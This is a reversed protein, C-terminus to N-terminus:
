LQLGHPQKPLVIWGEDQTAQSFQIPPAKTDKNLMPFHENTDKPQNHKIQAKNNSNKSM